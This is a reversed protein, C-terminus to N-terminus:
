RDGLVVWALGALVVLLAANISLLGTAFALLALGRLRGSPLGGSLRGLASALLGIVALQIGLLAGELARGGPVGTLLAAGAVMLSFTPVIFAVSAVIAGPWRGIRWGLFAVVQVVTSGPLPLTFALAARVDDASVWARREVLDRDILAVAAGLGGFALAGLRLFAVFQAALSPRHSPM